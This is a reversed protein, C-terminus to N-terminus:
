EQMKKIADNVIISLKSFLRKNKSEKHSMLLNIDSLDKFFIYHYSGTREFHCGDPLIQENIENTLIRTAKKYFKPINLFIGSFLLAKANVFIHNGLLEYELNKYLHEAQTHMSEVVETSPVAKTRSYFKLWNVLRLSTPYPKLALDNKILPLQVWKNILDLSINPNLSSNIYDFYNISFVSMYTHDSKKWTEIEDISLLHNLHEFFEGTITNKQDPEFDLHINQFGRNFKRYEKLDNFKLVRRLILFFIQKPKLFKITNVYLFLKRM